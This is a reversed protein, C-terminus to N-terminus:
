VFRLMLRQPIRLEISAGFDPPAALEIREFRRLIAALATEIITLALPAGLCIHEGQGFGLQRRADREIDLTDPDPFVAPDRNAAGVMALVADGRRIRKGGVETDIVAFRPAIHTPCDYRLLEHVAMRMREPDQRLAAMAEPHQVLAAMSNAIAGTTPDSGVTAIHAAISIVEELGFSGSQRAAALTAFVSREAFSDEEMDKVADGVIDVGAGALQVSGAYPNSRTVEIANLLPRLADAREATPGLVHNIVLKPLPNAFATMFEVPEGPTLSAVAREIEEAIVPEFERAADPTFLPNLLQRIRRHEEGSTTGLTEIEGLPVGRRHALIASARAGDVKTPDTTFRAGDHLAEACDGYRTLVWAGFDVSWHIPDERRLRTLAPYPNAIYAQRKPDFFAM